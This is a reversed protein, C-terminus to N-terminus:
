SRRRSIAFAVAAIIISPVWIWVIESTIVALGHDSFFGMGIPSVQIPTWPFFFRENSFPALLAVGLGGDTLMDLLPHTLTVAVFYAFLKWKSVSSARFFISVVAAGLLLAFVISHTFGRHGLLSGYKVGFAFGIVDADPLISCLATLVWFRTPLKESEFAKGIASAFVAHSFITPM